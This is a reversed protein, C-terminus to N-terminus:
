FVLKAVLEHEKSRQSFGCGSKRSSGHIYLLLYIHDPTLCGIRWGEEYGKGKRLALLKQFPIVTISTSERQLTTLCLLHSLTGPLKQFLKL